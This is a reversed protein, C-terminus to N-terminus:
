KTRKQRKRSCFYLKEGYGGFLKISKQQKKCLFTDSSKSLDCFTTIKAFFVLFRHILFPNPFPHLATRPQLPQEVPQYHVLAIRPWPPIHPEQGWEILV